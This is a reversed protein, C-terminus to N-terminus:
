KEYYRQRRRGYWYSQAPATTTPNFQPWRLLKHNLLTYCFQSLLSFAIAVYRRHCSSHKIQCVFPRTPQSPSTLYYKQHRGSLVGWQDYGPYFGPSGGVWTEKVATKGQGLWYM